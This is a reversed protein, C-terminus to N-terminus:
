LLRGSTHTQTQRAHVLLQAHWPHAFALKCQQGHTGGPITPLNEFGRQKKLPSPEGPYIKFHQSPSRCRVSFPTRCPLKEPESLPSPLPLTFPPTTSTTTTTPSVKTHTQGSMGESKSLLFPSLPPQKLSQKRIVPLIQVTVWVSCPSLSLSLSLSCPPKTWQTIVMYWQHAHTSRMVNM